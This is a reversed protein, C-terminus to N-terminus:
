AESLNGTAQFVDASRFLKSTEKLSKPYDPEIEAAKQRYIDLVFVRLSNDPDIKSAWQSLQAQIVLLDEVSRGFYSLLGDLWDFGQPSRLFKNV